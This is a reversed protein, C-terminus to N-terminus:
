GRRRLYALGPWDPRQALFAMVDAASGMGERLRHWEIIDRAIGAEPGASEAAEQWKESRMAEMAATLLKGQQAAAPLCFGVLFLAAATLIRTM